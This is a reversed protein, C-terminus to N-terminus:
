IETSDLATGGGVFLMYFHRTQCPVSNCNQGNAPLMMVEYVQSVLSHLGFSEHFFVGLQL